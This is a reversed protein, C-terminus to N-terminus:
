PARQKMAWSVLKGSDQKMAKCLPDAIFSDLYPIEMKEALVDIMLIM